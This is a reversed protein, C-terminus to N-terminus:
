PMLPAQTRIASSDESAIKVVGYLSAIIGNSSGSDYGLVLGRSEDANTIRAANFFNGSQQTGGAAHFLTAPSTTGIGIKRVM